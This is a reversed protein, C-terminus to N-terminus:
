ETEIRQQKSLRNKRYLRIRRISEGVRHRVANIFRFGNRRDYFIFALVSLLIFAILIVIPNFHTTADENLQRYSLLNQDAAYLKVTLVALLTAQSATVQARFMLDKILKL